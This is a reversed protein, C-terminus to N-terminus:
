KAKASMELASEFTSGPTLTSLACRDLASPRSAREFVVGIKTDTRWLSHCRRRAGEIIVDFFGPIGVSTSVQLAAGIDTANRVTCPIKPSKDNTIICATKLLRRRHASRKEIM